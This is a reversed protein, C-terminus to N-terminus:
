PIVKYKTSDTNGFVKKQIRKALDVTETISTNTKLSLYPIKDLKETEFNINHKSAFKELPELYPRQIKKLARFEVNFNQDNRVFFLSDYANATIGIFNFDTKGELVLNLEQALDELQIQKATFRDRRKETGTNKGFTKISNIISKFINM